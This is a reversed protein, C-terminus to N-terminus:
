KSLDLDSVIGTALRLYRCNEYIAEFDLMSGYIPPEFLDQTLSIAVNIKSGVFSIHVNHGSKKKFDTIRNMLSDTLISASEEENNGYVVFEKSFDANDVKIVKDRFINHKQVFDGFSGFLKHATDPLIITEGKFEKQLNAIFFLGHFITIFLKRGRHDKMIYRSHLESFKYSTSGDSGVIYDEGRFRHAKVPFIKSEDYEHQSILKDENYALSPDVYEVIKVIVSRKFKGRIDNLRTEFLKKYVLVGVMAWFVLLLLSILFDKNSHDSLSFNHFGGLYYVSSFVISFFLIMFAILGVYIKKREVELDSLHPILKEEYFKKFDELESM